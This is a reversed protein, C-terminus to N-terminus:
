DSEPQVPSPGEKLKKAGGNPQEANKETKNIASEIVSCLLGFESKSKLISKLEDRLANYESIRGMDKYLVMLEATVLVSRYALNGEKCIDLAEVLLDRAWRYDKDLSKFMSECELRVVRVEYPVPDFRKMIGIASRYHREATIRDKLMLHILCLDLESMASQAGGVEDPLSNSETENLSRIISLTDPDKSRAYEMLIYHIEDSRIGTLTGSASPDDCRLNVTTGKRWDSTGERLSYYSVSPTKGDRSFLRPDLTDRFFRDAFGKGCNLSDLIGNLRDMDRYSLQCISRFEHYRIRQASDEDLGQLRDLADELVRPSLIPDREFVGEKLAKNLLSKKDLAHDIILHCLEVVDRAHDRTRFGGIDELKKSLHEIAGEDIKWKRLMLCRAGEALVNRAPDGPATETLSLGKLNDDLEPDLSRGLAYALLEARSDDAVDLKSDWWKYEDDPILGAAETCRSIPDLHMELTETLERETMGPRVDRRISDCVSRLVLPSRPIDIWTQDAYRWIVMRDIGTEVSIMKLASERDLENLHVIGGAGSTVTETCSTYVVFTDTGAAMDFIEKSDGRRDMDFVFVIGKFGPIPADAPELNRCSIETSEEFWCRLAGALTRKRVFPAGVIGLAHVRETNWIRKILHISYDFVESRGFIRIPPNFRGEPIKSAM